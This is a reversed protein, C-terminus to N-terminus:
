ILKYLDLCNKEDLKITYSEGINVQIPICWCFFTGDSKTVVKTILWKEGGPKNSRMSFQNESKPSLLAVEDGSVKRFISDWSVALTISLDASNKENSKLKELNAKYIPMPDEDLIAYQIGAPYLDNVDTDISICWTTREIDAIEEKTLAMVRPYNVGILFMIVLLMSVIRNIKKMKKGRINNEFEGRRIDDEGVRGMIFVEEVKGFIGVVFM